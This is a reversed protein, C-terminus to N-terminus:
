KSKKYKNIMKHYVYTMGKLLLNVFYSLILSSIFVILVVLPAYYVAEDFRYHSNLYNYVLTDCIKSLLYAGFVLDSIKIIFIKLKYSVRTIRISKLLNFTLVTLIFPLIGYWERNHFVDNYITGRSKLFILLGFFLVLGIILLLNNRKSIKLKYESLYAGVFYYTIPYFDMWWSPIIIGLNNVFVSPLITLIFLTIILYEKKRRNLNHYLINLFPILLYLGFYMNMYWAYNNNYHFIYSIKEMFSINLKNNYIDFLLCIFSIIFFLLLRPIIKIYYNMELKKKNNLYGTLVIFLPVCITLFLKLCVLVYYKFNPEITMAYFNPYLFFHIFIVCFLAFIRIIDLNIIRDKNM